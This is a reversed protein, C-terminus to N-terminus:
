GGAKRLAEALQARRTKLLNGAKSATGSGLMAPTPKSKQKQKSPREKGYKNPM